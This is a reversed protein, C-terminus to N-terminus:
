SAADEDAEYCWLLTALPPLDLVLSCPQNNCGIAESHVVPAIPYGSGWYPREDSNFVLRYRGSKPAGLRYNLRVVPTLNAVVILQQKDGLSFRAFSLVSNHQDGHNIWSFGAPECDLEYLAPLTKYCHNLQRVMAQCGQHRPYQLLHWDLSQRYNWERGQALENGMFNLKKGPHFFMWAYYARLNATQQWEDGPMRGLISSKGHVVEDHSLPLIFNEDYAYLMSFTMDNHHYARHVPDQSMYQLSDHMWGMNWKFGFGLGGMFTPKSVGAFATSEEAISFCRPFQAYLTENFRKLFAQAEYNVNGGDVNPVWQGQQRSYDLYLMSAVADVRLADIHYYELWLMASSILFDCVTNRGYDYVYSHWDPHWGRRTDEYEYLPTGDFRALGHADAPFHAPVWDLIVGIGAQHCQDVFAKFQNPNGFRSTPAFLGLPQYGWSGSYPHEAVPMLEIHSYGMKVVYPILAQALEDYSLLQQQPGQRWSGLHVEYISIPQRRPDVQPRQMWQQDQWAYRHHDFVISDFFPHQQHWFGYPDARLPLCHQQQDKIEFKYRDGEQLEPIFLRWIGDDSSNMPHRRGDWDNFSGVVSVSRANPAYVAFRVGEICLGQREVQCLQAGMHKYLSSPTCYFDDYARQPFQYADIVDFFYHNHYVRVGYVPVQALVARFLGRHDVRVLDTIPEGTAWNLLTVKSAGQQWVTVQQGQACAQVGLWAFPRAQLVASLSDALTQATDQHLSEDLVTTDVSLHTTM